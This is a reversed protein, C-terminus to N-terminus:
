AHHERIIALPNGVRHVQVDTEPFLRRNTLREVQITPTRLDFLDFRERLQPFRQQYGDIIASAMGWFRRESLGYEDALFLALEALNIFLFADLVFDRVDEPSTATVYSNRNVGWHRAPTAHLRPQREPAALHEPMFRVGDHFDKFAVRQPLGDRHILVMNQAHSELAVGHAYLLHIIPLISLELAPKLWAELGHRRVWPDILPRGDQHRQTLGNWPAAQEGDDLFGHLSERWICSATGYTLTILLAPQPRDYALGAIERLVIVRLEDRLFPDDAAIGALWDSIVPANLVTHPALIRSTSTNVISLACKLYAREPRSANSLTRISQQPLYDDASEGLLVLAGSHFDQHMTAVTQERWQWPHVPLFVYDAPDLGRERLREQFQGYLDGLQEGLFGDLDLAA